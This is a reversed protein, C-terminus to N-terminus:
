AKPKSQSRLIRDVKKDISTHDTDPTLSEIVAIDSISTKSVIGNQSMADIMQEIYLINVKEKKATGESITTASPEMCEQPSQVSRITSEPQKPQESRESTKHLETQEKVTEFVLSISCQPCKGRTARVNVSFDEGCNPCTVRTQEM